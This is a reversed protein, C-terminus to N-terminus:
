KKSKDLTMELFLRWQKGDQSFEGSEVWQGKDNLKLTFRIKGQPSDFGWIFNGDKIEGRADVYGGDKRFAKVRFEKHTKDYHFFALAHHAVNGQSDKGKGEVLFVSGDLKPEIVERITFEQKGERTMAWGTGSWSGVLFALPKMDASPQLPADEMWGPLLALVILFM